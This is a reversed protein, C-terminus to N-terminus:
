GARLSGVLGVLELFERRWPAQQPGALAAVRNWGFKGLLPDGRLGIRLLRTEGNWPTAALDTTVSFPQARDEPLPYDYRFYNILEETRVAEKPPLQGMRVFRRSNAYAGTDVDISFTSVPDKAAIRIPSIDQGVYRERNEAPPLCADAVANGPPQAIVPAPAYGSALAERFGFKNQPAKIDATTLKQPKSQRAADVLRTQERMVCGLTGVTLVLAIAGSALQTGNPLTM